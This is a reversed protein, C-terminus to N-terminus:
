DFDNDKGNWSHSHSGDKSDTNSPTREIISEEICSSTYVIIQKESIDSGLASIKGSKITKVYGWSREAYGIGLIKLTGQM